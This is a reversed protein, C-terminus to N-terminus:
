ASLRSLTERSVGLYAALMTKSVRQFLAPSKKLLQAYREKANTTLLSLIRQQAGVHGFNSKMLFFHEMKHFTACLKHYDDFALCLVETDEICILSMAAKSQTYYAGFDSEWWDEMAFSVIHQKGLADAYVLKVLGSVIFYAYKVPEGEQILFQHKKYKRVSFHSYILEFEADTLPVIAEIHERFQNMM